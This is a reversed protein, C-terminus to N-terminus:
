IREFRSELDSVNTFCQALLLCDSMARHANVYPVKMANCVDELRLRPLVVPWRFNAKTCIWRKEWFETSNIVTRMFRKDFDANHAVVYDCNKAMDQLFTLASHTNPNCQTWEPDIHNINQVPNEHCPLFFSLSQIVQKHKINYLVAGIEIVKAGKSPDLGTTETDLILLNSM